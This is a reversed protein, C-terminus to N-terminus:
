QKIKQIHHANRINKKNPLTKVVQDPDISVQVIKLKLKQKSMNRYKTESISPISM